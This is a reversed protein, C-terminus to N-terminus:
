ENNVSPNELDSTLKHVLKQWAQDLQSYTPLENSRYFIMMGLQLSKAELTPEILQKNKRIVERLLRKVYNRDHARKFARKPVALVVQFPVPEHLTMPLYHCTLPYAKQVKGASYLENIQKKSCLKYAKGFHEGATM